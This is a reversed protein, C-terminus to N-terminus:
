SSGLFMETRRLSSSSKRRMGRVDKPGTQGLPDDFLELAPPERKHVSSPEKEHKKNLHKTSSLKTPTTSQRDKSFSKKISEVRRLSSTDVMNEVRSMSEKVLKKFLLPKSTGFTENITGGFEFLTDEMERRLSTLSDSSSRRSLISTPTSGGTGTVSSKSSQRSLLKQSESFPNSSCHAGDDRFSTLTHCNRTGERFEELYEVSVSSPVGLQGVNVENRSSM